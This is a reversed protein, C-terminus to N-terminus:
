RFNPVVIDEGDVEVHDPSWDPSTAWGDPTVSPIIALRLCAMPVYHLSYKLEATKFFVDSRACGFLLDNENVIGAVQTEIAQEAIARAKSTMGYQAIDQKNVFLIIRRQAPGRANQAVQWEHIKKLIDHEARYLQGIAVYIVLKSTKVADLIDALAKEDMIGPTDRIIVGDDNV